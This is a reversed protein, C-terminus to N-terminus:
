PHATATQQKAKALLTQYDVREPYLTVLKELPAIAGKADKLEIRANALGELAIQNNPERQLVLEYGQAEATLAEAESIEPQESNIPAPAIANLYVPVVGALLSGLFFLGSVLTFVRKQKDSLLM